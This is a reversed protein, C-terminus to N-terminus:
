TSEEDGISTRSATQRQGDKQWISRQRREKIKGERDGRGRARNRTM